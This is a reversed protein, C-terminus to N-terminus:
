KIVNQNKIRFSSQRVYLFLVHSKRKRRRVGDTSTLQTVVVPLTTGPVCWTIGCVCTSNELKSNRCSRPFITSYTRRWIIQIYKRQVLVLVIYLYLLTSTSYKYLSLRYMTLFSVRNSTGFANTTWELITCSYPLLVVLCLM